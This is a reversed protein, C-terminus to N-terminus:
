RGKTILTSLPSTSSEAVRLLEQETLFRGYKELQEQKAIEWFVEDPMMYTGAIEGHKEACPDCLYFAFNCNDENVMGGDAGCNACYVPIMIGFPTNCVVGRGSKARSDPLLEYKDTM